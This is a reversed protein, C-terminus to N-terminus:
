RESRTNTANIPKVKIHAGEDGPWQAFIKWADLHVVQSDNAFVGADQLADLVNRSHKDVDGTHVTTPWERKVTKPRPVRLMAVIEVAGTLPDLGSRQHALRAHFSVLERWAKSGKVQEVMVGRGLSRMSGKPRPVGPVSFTLGGSM